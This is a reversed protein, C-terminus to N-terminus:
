FFSSRNTACGHVVSILPLSASAGGTYTVTARVHDVFADASGKGGNSVQFVVGFNSANIDASAFALGWLDASGGYSRYGIIGSLANSASKNNGSVVGGKVLKIIAEFAVNANTNCRIEMLIGNITAGAPITFGFNTAKLYHSTSAGLVSSTTGDSVTINGTNTWATSGVASDDAGTGTSLPGQSAM